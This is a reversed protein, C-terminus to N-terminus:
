NYHVLLSTNYSTLINIYKYLILTFFTITNTNEKIDNYFIFPM